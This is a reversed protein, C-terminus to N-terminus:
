APVGRFPTTAHDNSGAGPPFGDRRRAATSAVGGTPEGGDWSLNPLSRQVTITRKWSM